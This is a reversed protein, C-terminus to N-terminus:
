CIRTVHTIPLVQVCSQMSYCRKTIRPVHEKSTLSMVFFTIQANTCFPNTTKYLSFVESRNLMIRSVVQIDLLKMAETIDWVIPLINEGVNFMVCVTVYWTCVCVCKTHGNLNSSFYHAVPVCLSIAQFSHSCIHSALNGSTSEEHEGSIVKDIDYNISKFDIFGVLSGTQRRFIPESWKM